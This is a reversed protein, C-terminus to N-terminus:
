IVCSPPCVPRGRIWFSSNFHQFKKFAHVTSINYLHYLVFANRYYTASLLHGLKGRVSGVRGEFLVNGYYFYVSVGYLNGYSASKMRHRLFMVDSEDIELCVLAYLLLIEVMSSLRSGNESEGLSFLRYRSVLVAVQMTEPLLFKLKFFLSRGPSKM